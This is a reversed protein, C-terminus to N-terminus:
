TLSLESLILDVTSDVEDVVPDRTTDPPTPIPPVTFRASSALSRSPVSASKDSDCEPLVLTISLM